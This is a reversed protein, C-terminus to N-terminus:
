KIGLVDKFAAALAALKKDADSPQAAAKRAADVDRDYNNAKYRRQESGKYLGILLEKAERGVWYKVQDDTPEADMVARYAYNVTERDMIKEEKFSPRLYGAISSFPYFDESAPSGVSLSPKRANQAVAYIGNSGVRAVVGTHGYNVGGSWMNQFFLDGPEPDAPKPLGLPNKTFVDIANYGPMISKYGLQETYWAIFALCQAGYPNTYGHAQAHSQGIASRILEVAQDRTAM